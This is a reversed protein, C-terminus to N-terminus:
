KLRPLNQFFFRANEKKIKKIFLIKSIYFIFKTMCMDCSINENTKIHFDLFFVFKTMCMDCSTSENTKIHFDLFFVFKTMCM